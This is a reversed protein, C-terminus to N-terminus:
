WHGAGSVSRSKENGDDNLLVKVCNRSAPLLTVRPVRGPLEGMLREWGCTRM